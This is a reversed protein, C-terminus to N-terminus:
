NVRASGVELVVAPEPNDRIWQEVIERVAHDPCLQTTYRDGHEDVWEILAAKLRGTRAAPLLVDTIWTAPNTSETM